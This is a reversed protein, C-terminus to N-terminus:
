PLAKMARDYQRVYAQIEAKDKKAHLQNIFIEHKIYQETVSVVGANQTLAASACEEPETCGILARAGDAVIAFESRRSCDPGIHRILGPIAPEGCGCFVGLVTAKRERPLDVAIAALDAEVAVVYVHRKANVILERALELVRERGTVTWIGAPEPARLAALEQRLLRITASADKEKQDLFMRYDSATLLNREGPQSVLLGKSTLKEVTEYIRSRPVGSAKALEYGTLPPSSLAALYAQAEYGTLGLEALSSLLKGKGPKTHAEM